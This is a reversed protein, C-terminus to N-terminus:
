GAVEKNAKNRLIVVQTIAFRLIPGDVLEAPSMWGKFQIIDDLWKASLDILTADDIAEGSETWILEVVDITNEIMGAIIDNCRRWGAFKDPDDPPNDFPNYDLTGLEDVDEKFQEYRGIESLKEYLKELNVEIAM